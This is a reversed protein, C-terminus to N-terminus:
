AVRIGEPALADVHPDPAATRRSGDPLFLHFDGDLVQSVFACRYDDWDGRSVGAAGATECQQCTYYGYPNMTWGTGPAPPFWCPYTPTTASPTAATAVATAGAVPLLVVTLVTALLTSTRM